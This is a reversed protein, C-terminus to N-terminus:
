PTGGLHITIRRNQAEDVRQCAERWAAYQAVAVRHTKLVYRQHVVLTGAGQREYELDFQVLPTDLHVADPVAAFTAGAPLRLTRREDSTAPGPVMVDNIRTAQGAYERTLNLANFPSVLLESGQRTGLIPVQADYDGRAPREIEALDDFRVRTVHM